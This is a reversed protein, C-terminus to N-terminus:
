PVSPFGMVSPGGVQRRLAKDMAEGDCPRVAEDIIHCLDPVKRNVAEM